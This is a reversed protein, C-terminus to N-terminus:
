RLEAYVAKAQKLIPIDPDADKWLEFFDQFAKRAKATEGAYAFGRAMGLYSLSYYQGWYPHVWTAGWNAGKHDVIKQFEAVAEAGKRLRLYALGRLYVAALYSREYPSASALLDVSEAPRDRHLAIAARIEPLQVSNWITGDPFVKSTEAALKEAQAADGCMALALAPRGLRRATQCNGSLAGARADAEDFESAIDRFGRRLATEAAQQYLRHSERRQGHANRNAAQLGFSLYEEPQAAFWQIERSIAAQDEEVYAMELFRQHIRPGDLQQARLKEGLQRAEALRDLCIYADLQRRYPPEINPQVRTGELGQKLGEEYQGLDVYRVGLQNPFEWRQPYNRISSQLADIEKYVEGTTRYYAPVIQAREYDSVRDVLRFADKAYKRSSAMDGANDFAISLYYYAIAFNPDIAIAREFSAIAAVTQSKEMEAHGATYNQLAELSATTAQEPPRNPKQISNLSEGLKGRLSAAATGLASLVHEKDEAEIQERALTAGNQCTSAQLTLVYKKGLSAINGDVTAAAEERVCIEHAVQDTFRTDRPLNMRRLVRQMQDDDMIKLLPSQELQIALDQRLTNDFVPDGTSNVFDALVVTDKGALKAPRHLYFWAGATVAGIAAAGAVIRKWHGAAPSISALEPELEAVSQWRDAPDEQVCRSVIKELKPSPLRRRGSGSKSGIHSGIRAGTSMEYLVCGFSYIDTRADTPKAERQEPSMYAPTGMVMRSTTLTEDEGSKALGFDLVKVTSKAIMINGPKLDRHVIGKAHAEALAAAIQGGYHRVMEIPLPGQKLRAALTEGEVLEMVLYNPGVDYLTCINPHNLSSIARAEREFRSSFQQRTIKIAVARGLRTDVARFVQGMGGEGLKSDIQYPGLRAGATWETATLDQLLQAADQLAPGDMFESAVRVALLSEVERRLEPDAQSLLAVREDASGERAAHYLEEIQQFREPTM